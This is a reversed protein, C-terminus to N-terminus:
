GPVWLAAVALALQLGLVLGSCKVLSCLGKARLQNPLKMDASAFVDAPAGQEIQAALTNSGGFSYRPAADIRPFVDTLSAAAYVTLQVRAAGEALAALAALGICLALLATTAVLARRKRIPM